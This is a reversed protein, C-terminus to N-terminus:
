YFNSDDIFIRDIFLKVLFEKPLECLDEFTINNTIYCDEYEKLRKDCVSHFIITTWIWKDLNDEGFSLIFPININKIYSLEFFGFGLTPHEYKTEESLKMLKKVKDKNQLIYEVNMKGSEFIIVWELLHTYMYKEIFEIDFWECEGSILLIYEEFKISHKLFFDKDFVKKKIIIIWSDVDIKDIFEELFKKSIIYPNLTIIKNLIETEDIIEYVEFLKKLHSVSLDRRKILDNISYKMPNKFVDSWKFNQPITM